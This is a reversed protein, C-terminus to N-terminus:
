YRQRGQVQIDVWFYSRPRSPLAVVAIAGTHKTAEKLYIFRSVQFDLYGPLAPAACEVEGAIFQFQINPLSKLQKM